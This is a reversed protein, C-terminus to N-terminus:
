LPNGSNPLNWNPHKKEALDKETPIKLQNEGQEMRRVENEQILHHIGADALNTTGFKARKQNFNNIIESSDSFQKEKTPPQSVNVAESSIESGLRTQALGVQIRAPTFSSKIRTTQNIRSNYGPKSIVIKYFGKPLAVIFRGKADSVSTAKLKGDAESIMNVTALEVGQGNSIDYVKGFGRGNFVFWRAIYYIILAGYLSLVILNLLSYHKYYAIVSMALGFIVLPINAIRLIKSMSEFLRIKKVELLAEDNAILPLAKDFLKETESPHFIHSAFYNQDYALQTNAWGQNKTLDYGQRKIEVYYEEGPPTELAFRGNKDSKVTSILKKDRARYLLILVGAVPSGSAADYTIGPLHKKEKSKVFFGFLKSLTNSIVVLNEPNALGLLLAALLPIAVAPNIPWGKPTGICLSGFCVSGAT